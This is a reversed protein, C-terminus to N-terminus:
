WDFRRGLLEFLRENPQRYIEALQAAVEGPIPDGGRSVNRRLVDFDHGQAVGVFECVQDLTRQPDEVLESQELVLISSRDFHDYYRQLQEAYFGRKVYARKDTEWTTADLRAIEEDVAEPFSRDDAFPKLQPNSSKTFRKYMKWASYARAVPERVIAILRLAPDYSHIRAPVTSDFLYSPSTEWTLGGSGLQAPLPFMAHYASENGYALRGNDFYHVEKAVSPRLAPHQALSWHLATTGAKQAGIIIFSPRSHYGLRVAVSRIGGRIAAPLQM